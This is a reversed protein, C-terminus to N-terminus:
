IRVRVDLTSWKDDMYVDVGDSRRCTVNGREAYSFPPFYMRSRITDQLSGRREVPKARNPNCAMPPM